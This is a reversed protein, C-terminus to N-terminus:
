CRSSVCLLVALEASPDGTWFFNVNVAVQGVAWAIPEPVAM